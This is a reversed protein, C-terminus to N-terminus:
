NTAPTSLGCCRVTLAGVFALPSNLNKLDGYENIANLLTEPDIGEANFVSGKLMDCVAVIRIDAGFRQKLLDHKKVLISALGQGVNGFGIIALKYIKM